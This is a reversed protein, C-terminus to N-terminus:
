ETLLKQIRASHIKYCLDTTKKLINKYKSKKKIIPVRSCYLILKVLSDRNDFLERWKLVGICNIVQNKISVHVYM